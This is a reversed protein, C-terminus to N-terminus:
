HILGRSMGLYVAHARNHVRLKREVNYMHTRATLPSIGLEKGIDKDSYGHAVLELIRVESDTLRRPM